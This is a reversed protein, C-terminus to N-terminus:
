PLPAHGGYSLLTSRNGAVPYVTPELGVPAGGTAGYQLDSLKSAQPCSWDCFGLKPYALPKRFRDCRQESHAAVVNYDSYRFTRTSM